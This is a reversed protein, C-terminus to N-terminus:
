LPMPLFLSSDQFLMLFLLTVWRSPWIDEWFKIHSGDGFGLSVLYGFTVHGLLTFPPIPLKSAGLILSRSLHAGHSLCSDMIGLNLPREEAM